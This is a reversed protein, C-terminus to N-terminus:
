SGLLIREDALGPMSPDSSEALQLHQRARTPRGLERMVHGLVMHALANDHQRRHVREALKRLKELRRKSARGKRRYSMWREHLVYEEVEPDLRAAKAFASQAADLDDERWAALGEQSWREAELRRQRLKATSRTEPEGEASETPQFTTSVEGTTFRAFAGSGLSDIGEPTALEYSGSGFERSASSGTLEDFSDGLSDSAASASARGAVSRPSATEGPTMLGMVASDAGTRKHNPDRPTELPKM